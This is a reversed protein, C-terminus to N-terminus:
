CTPERKALALAESLQISGSYLSKGLIVGQVGVPKLAILAEIDSLSSIGGSAIVPITIGQALERIASFNPGGMMGDRDIDTYIITSVGMRSVQKALEVASQETAETWGKVMVKGGKADIGVSIKGPYSKCAIELFNSDSVVKTGLIVTSIGGSIYKDINDITRIGGGVQVPIPLSTAIKEIIDFQKPEGSFAGDLDVIHIREAGLSAWRNGTEVPDDSYVTASQAKGQKLRVCRGNQLDIAPIILM